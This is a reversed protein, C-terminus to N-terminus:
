GDASRPLAAENHKIFEGVGKLIRAAEPSPIDEGDKMAENRGWWLTKLRELTWGQPVNGAPLKAIRDWISDDTTMKKGCDELIDRVRVAFERWAIIAAVTPEADLYSRALDLRDLDKLSDAILKARREQVWYDKSFERQLKRREDGHRGHYARRYWTWLGYEAELVKLKRSTPWRHESWVKLEECYKAYFKPVTPATIYLQSALHHSCMAFRAPYVHQLVLATLTLERFCYIIKGLLDLDYDRNRLDAILRPANEAEMRAALDKADPKTWDRVFPLDSAFIAMVHDVTLPDKGSRVPEYLNKIRDFEGKFDKGYRERLAEPFADWYKGL